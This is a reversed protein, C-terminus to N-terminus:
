LGTWATSNWIYTGATQSQSTYYTAFNNFRTSQGVTSISCNAAINISTLAECNRFAYAGISTAMPIEINILNECYEIAYQDITTVKPFVMSILNRCQSFAADLIITAEPFSVSELNTNIFSWRGIDTVVPFTVSELSNIEQFARDGINTISKGEVEKLNSFYEFTATDSPVNTGEAISTAADPLVIGVIKDKGTSISYDPDFVTGSMTCNSLDLEIFKGATDIADLLDQWGSGAVAMSGLDFDMPLTYPTSDDNAPLSNLYALAAAASGFPGSDVIILRDGTLVVTKGSEDARFYAEDGSSAGSNVIVGNSTATQVYVEMGPAPTVPGTGLTIYAGNGLSVNNLNSGPLTRNERIVATGGLTIAGNAFVGAFNGANNESITGGTMNLTNGAYAGGGIVSATNDQIIGGSISLANGTYLGGGYVAATNGSIIGGTINTNNAAHVGGGDSSAKNGSITGSSMGFTDITFVGGGSAAATNGSITGGTINLTNEAHVGGGYAATNGSIIGGIIDITGSANVYVGGGYQSAANGSITGGTINITKATHVGGGDEATNSSISGGNMVFTGPDEIYVGGGYAARNNQLIAGTNMTFTGDKVRVLSATSGSLNDKNGDIVIDELILSSGIQVIFLGEGTNPFAPTITRIITSNSKITVTVGPTSPLTFASSMTQDVGVRVTYSYNGTISALAADLDSYSFTNAGVDVWVTDDGDLVTVVAVNSVATALPNGNVTTNTNTVAVYYYYTGAAGIEPTYDMNTAGAIVAGGSNSNTGNSYWQYSLTGGDSVTATVTLETIASIGEFISSQPHVIILPELADTISDNTVTIKAIESATEATRNGNVANNTNTVLVWYYTVENPGILVLNIAPTYEEGTEGPIAESGDYTESTNRYWQYSLTGGDTVMARVALPNPTSGPNYGAGAPQMTILPIQANVIEPVATDGGGLIQEFYPNGCFAFLLSCVVVLLATLPKRKKEKGLVPKRGNM